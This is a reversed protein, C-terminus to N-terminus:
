DFGIYLFFCLKPIKILTYVCQAFIQTMGNVKNKKNNNNNEQM